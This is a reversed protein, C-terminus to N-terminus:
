ETKSTMEVRAKETKTKRILEIVSLKPIVVLKQSDVIQM